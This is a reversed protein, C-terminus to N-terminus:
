LITLYAGSLLMKLYLGESCQLPPKENRHSGIATSKLLFLSRKYDHIGLSNAPISFKDKTIRQYDYM